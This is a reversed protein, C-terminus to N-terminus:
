LAMRSHEGLVGKDDGFVNALVDDCFALIDEVKSATNM